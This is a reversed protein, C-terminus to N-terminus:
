RGDKQYYVGYGTTKGSRVHRSQATIHGSTRLKKEDIDADKVSPYGKFLKMMGKGPVDVKEPYGNVVIVKRYM